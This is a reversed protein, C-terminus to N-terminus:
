EIEELIEDPIESKNLMNSCGCDQCKFNYYDGSMGFFKMFGQCIGCMM